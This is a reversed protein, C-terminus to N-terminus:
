LLTDGRFIARAAKPEGCGCLGWTREEGGFASM